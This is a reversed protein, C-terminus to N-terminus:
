VSRLQIYRTKNSRISSKKIFGKKLLSNLANTVTFEKLGDKTMESVIVSRLIPIDNNSVWQSIFCM